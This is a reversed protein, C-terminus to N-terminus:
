SMRYWTFYSYSGAQAHLISFNTVIFQSNVKDWRITNLIYWVQVDASTAVQTESAFTTQPDENKFVHASFEGPEKRPNM